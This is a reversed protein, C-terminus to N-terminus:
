RKCIHLINQCDFFTYKTFLKEIKHSGWFNNCVENFMAMVLELVQSTHQHMEVVHTVSFQFSSINSDCQRQAKLWECLLFQFLFLVENSVLVLYPLTNLFWTLAIVIYVILYWSSIADGVHEYNTPLYNNHYRRDDIGM